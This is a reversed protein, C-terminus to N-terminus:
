CRAPRSNRPHLNPRSRSSRPAPRAARARRGPRERAHLRLGRTRRGGDRRLLATRARGRAPGGGPSRCHGARQVAHDPCRRPQPGGRAGGPLPARCLQGLCPPSADARRSPLGDDMARHAAPRRAARAAADAAARGGAPQGVAHRAREVPLPCRPGAFGPRATLVVGPVSGRVRRVRADAGHRHERSGELARSGM